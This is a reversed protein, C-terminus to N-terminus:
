ETRISLTNYSRAGLFFGIHIHHDTASSVIEIEVGSKQGRAIWLAVNMMASVLKFLQEGNFNYTRLDFAQGKFHLSDAVSGEPRDGPLRADDTLHLPFGFQDRVEDLMLAATENVLEPHKFENLKFHRLDHTLPM